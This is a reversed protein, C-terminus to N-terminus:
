FHHFKVELLTGKCNLAAKERYLHGAPQLIFRNTDGSKKEKQGLFVFSTLTEDESCFLSCRTESM